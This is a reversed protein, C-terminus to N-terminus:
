ADISTIKINIKVPTIAGTLDFHGFFRKKLALVLFNLPRSLSPVHEIGGSSDLEDEERM